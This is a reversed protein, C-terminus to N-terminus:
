IERNNAYFALGILVILVVVAIVWGISLAVIGEVVAAFLIDILGLFISMAITIALVALTLQRAEERTPWTVKELERRVLHYQQTITNFSFGQPTTSRSKTASSKAKITASKTKSTISKTKSTAQKIKAM